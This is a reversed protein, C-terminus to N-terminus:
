VAAAPAELVPTAITSEKVNEERQVALSEVIEETKSETIVMTSEGSDTSVVIAETEDMATATATAVSTTSTEQVAAKKEVEEATVSVLVPDVLTTVTADQPDQEKNIEEQESYSVTKPTDEKKDATSAGSQSSVVSTTLPKILSAKTPTSTSSANRKHTLPASSTSFLSVTPASPMGFAPRSFTSWSSRSNRPSSSTSSVPSTSSSTSTTKTLASRTPATSSSLTTTATTAATTTTTTTSTRPATTTSSATSSTSTRTIPELVDKAPESHTTTTTATSPPLNPVPKVSGKDQIQPLFWLQPRNEHRKDDLLNRVKEPMYNFVVNRKLSASRGKGSFVQRIHASHEVAAKAYPARRDRYEKFVTTLDTMSASDMNSLLNVLTVADVISESVPQYFGKHCADGILVTRGGYWTDCFREESMNMYMNEVPTSEILEGVQGGYPCDYKKVAELMEDMDEQRWSNVKSAEGQRIAVKTVERTIDWAIRNDLLPMFWIAYPKDPVQVSQIETMADLLVPVMMPDLPKTCGSLIQLDVSMPIVDQKPLKKKEDLTWYLTHRVNSFGGDAGILVDSEYTTGDSCRVTVKEKSQIMGLVKGSVLRRPPIRQLLLSHLQSRSMVEAHYGYREKYTSYDIRGVYNMDHENMSFGSVPKSIKQIEEYIGLQHLFHLATPGVQVAGGMNKNTNVPEPEPAPAPAPATASAPTSESSSQSLSEESPSETISKEPPPISEDLVTYEFGALELAIAASLGAIGAGVIIIKLDTSAM